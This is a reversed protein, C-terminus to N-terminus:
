IELIGDELTCEILEIKNPFYGEEKCFNAVKVLAEANNEAAVNGPIKRSGTTLIVLYAKM